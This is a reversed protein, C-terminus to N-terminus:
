RSSETKDFRSYHESRDQHRNSKLWMGGSHHQATFRDNNQTLERLIDKLGTATCVSQLLIGGGGGGGGGGRYPVPWCCVAQTGDLSGFNWSKGRIGTRLWTM